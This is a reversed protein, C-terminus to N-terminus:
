DQSDHLGTEIWGRVVAVKDWPLEPAKPKLEREVIQLLQMAAEPVPKQTLALLEAALAPSRQELRRRGDLADRNGPETAILFSLSQNIAFSDVYQRATLLEGRAHRECATWLVVCLNELAEAMTRAPQLSDRHVSEILKSIEGRDILVQYREVKGSRAEELDFVLFEVKHRNRLLITRGHKGHNVTILINQHDPLWSLDEVLFDQAGPETLIWFDHDSWEDRFTPDATSGFSVLGIVEPRSDLSARLRETYNEFETLDM